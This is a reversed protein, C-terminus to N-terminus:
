ARRAEPRHSLLGSLAIVTRRMELMQEVQRGLTALADLQAPTLSRSRRDMVTLTGLREGGPANVAIAALFRLRAPAAILASGAFRPDAAMDPVMLHAATKEVDEDILAGPLEIQKDAFAPSSYRAKIWQTCSLGNQAHFIILGIPAASVHAALRAIDNYAAEPDSEMIGYADLVAQIPLATAAPSQTFSLPNSLNNM